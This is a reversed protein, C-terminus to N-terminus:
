LGHDGTKELVKYAPGPKALKELLKCGSYYVYINALLRILKQPSHGTRGAPGYEVTINGISTTKKLIEMSIYVFRRDAGKIADVTKRNIIRFSCVKIGRPKDTLLSFTADRLMSGFRRFLNKDGPRSNIAYVADHGKAAAEYLRTIDEPKNELDDDMIVAYDCDCHNLGCLIASQQGYNSDLRIGTLIDNGDALTRIIGYSVDTSNDDVMIIRGDKFNSLVSVTREILLPLHRSGNYVPIVVCVSCDFM